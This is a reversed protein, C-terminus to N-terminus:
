WLINYDKDKTGTIHGTEATVMSEEKAQPHASSSGLERLACDGHLRSSGARCRGRRLRGLRLGCAGPARHAREHIGGADARGTAPIDLLVDQLEVPLQAALDKAEGDALRQGLRALGTRTMVGAAVEIGTYEGRDRVKAMFEDYTM